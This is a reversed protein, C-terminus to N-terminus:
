FGNLISLQRELFDEETDTVDVSSSSPKPYSMPKNLPQSNGISEKEPKGLSPVQGLLFGPSASAPHESVSKEENTKGKVDNIAISRVLNVNFLDLSDNLIPNAKTIDSNLKDAMGKTTNLNNWSLSLNSDSGNQDEKM